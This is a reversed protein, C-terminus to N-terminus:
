KLIIFRLGNGRLRNRKGITTSSKTVEIASVLREGKSKESPSDSNTLPNLVSYLATGKIISNRPSYAEIIDLGYTKTNQLFDFLFSMERSNRREEEVEVWVM